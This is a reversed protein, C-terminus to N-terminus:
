NNPFTCKVTMANYIPLNKLLEKSKRNRNKKIM